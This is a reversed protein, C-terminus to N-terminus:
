RFCGFEGQDPLGCIFEVTLEERTMWRFGGVPLFDMMAKGYLNNANLFTCPPSSDYDTLSLHNAKSHRKGVMSLGGLMAKNLFLYQDVETLFDLKARLFLLFADFMFHPSSYYHVPDLRYDALCCDRYNEFVDVLLLCDSLLYVHLYNKLNKCQFADWVEQVFAYWEDSVHSCTLNNYFKEKEPM